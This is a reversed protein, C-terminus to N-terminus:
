RSNGSVGARARGRAHCVVVIDGRGMYVSMLRFSRSLFLRVVAEEPQIRCMVDMLWRLVRKKKIYM